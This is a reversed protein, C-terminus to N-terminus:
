SNPVERFQKPTLGTKQRFLRNFYIDSEFGLSYAIKKQTKSIQLLLEKAKELKLLLHYQLPSSGTQKKFDIRFKSYSEGFESAIKNLDMITKRISRYGWIEESVAWTPTGSLGM